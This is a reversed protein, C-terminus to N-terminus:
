AISINDIYSETILKVSNKFSKIKNYARAQGIYYSTLHGTQDLCKAISARVGSKLKCEIILADPNFLRLVTAIFLLKHNYDDHPNYTVCFVDYVEKIMILDTMVPTIDKIISEILDPHTLSLVKVIRAEDM